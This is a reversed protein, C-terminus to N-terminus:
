FRKQRCLEAASQVIKTVNQLLLIAHRYLNCSIFERFIECIWSPPRVGYQLECYLWIKVFFWGIKIFNLLRNCMQFEIVALHGFIFFYSFELYRIVAMKYVVKNALHCCFMTKRDYSLVRNDLKLSIKCLSVSYCPSLPWTVYVRFKSFELIGVAAMYFFFRKQGYSLLHFKQSSAIKECFKSLPASVPTECNPSRHVASEYRRRYVQKYLCFLFITSIIMTTNCWEPTTLSEYSKQRQKSFDIWLFTITERRILIVLKVNM